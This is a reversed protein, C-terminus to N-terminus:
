FNGTTEGGNCTGVAQYTASDINESVMRVSGDGLLFQAGGSHRSSFSGYNGPASNNPNGYLPTAATNPTPSGVIGLEASPAGVIGAWIAETGRVVNNITGTSMREGVVITNSTGDKMDRFRRSSNLGFMGGGHTATGSGLANTVTAGTTPNTYTSMIVGAYNARSLNGVAGSGNDSACRYNNQTGTLNTDTTSYVQMFNLASYINNQEMQPLIFVAWGFNNSAPSGGVVWGPPFANYSSEYNHLALGIQKMNNKCQTRRAAERAQQVAPLLLAILIAIIAIVVLLEILTFGRHKRVKTM